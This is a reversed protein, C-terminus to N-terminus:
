PREAGRELPRQRHRGPQAPSCPAPRVAGYSATVSLEDNAEGPRLTLHQRRRDIDHLTRKIKAASGAPLDALDVDLLDNETAVATLKPWAGLGNM